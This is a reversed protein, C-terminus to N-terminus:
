ESQAGIKKRKRVRVVAIGVKLPDVDFIDAILLSSVLEAVIAPDRATDDAASDNVAIWEVAKRYSARKM